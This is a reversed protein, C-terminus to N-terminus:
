TINVRAISVNFWALCFSSSVALSSSLLRVSTCVLIFVHLSLETHHSISVKLDATPIDSQPSNHASGFEKKASAPCGNQYNWLWVPVPGDHLTEWFTMTSEKDALCEKSNSLWKYNGFPSSLLNVQVM